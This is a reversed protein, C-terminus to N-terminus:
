GYLITSYIEARVMAEIVTPGDAGLAALVARRFEAPTRAVLCPVGFYEAPPTYATEGVQVGTYAYHRREQKVKILALWNDNLVIFPIKLGLRKATAMEGAMMLFCGDGMIAAVEREPRALKAGFAAPIAYGMSSWGNSVLLTEPETVRWQTAVLHTHAGVDCLLIGDRPFLERLIDLAQWPQFGEGPLRLSAELHGRFAALEADTWDTPGGPQAALRRCLDTLDGIVQHEVRVTADVDAPEGELHVLPARPMWEEYNIEVGDYGIGLILDAQALFDEVTKRRARGVVGIWLPHDEPVVGKGMMTTVFPIRRAEIFRRLDALGRSRYLSFGLAAVPRRARALRRMAAAFDAEPATRAEGAVVGGAAPGAEAPLKAVDEPLDLHVPGPPEATSLAIAERVTEAIRGPALMLSAKTLPRFLDQQDIRMQVRRKLQAVPVQGTIALAPSRDLYANGVGTTLNTAGPGLTAVCVGPVGTLRGIVDAMFGATMEHSVLVYQIGVKRMAEIIPLVHGSPIGSAHRVGAAQLTEAILDANTRHEAM